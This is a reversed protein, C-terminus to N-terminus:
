KRNGGSEGEKGRRGIRRRRGGRERGEKEKEKEKEDKSRLLVRRDIPNIEHVTRAGRQNTAGESAELAQELEQRTAFDILARGRSLLHVAEVAEGFEMRLQEVTVSDDLERVILTMAGKRILAMDQVSLERGEDKKVVKTFRKGNWVQVQKSLQRGEDKKVAKTLKMM